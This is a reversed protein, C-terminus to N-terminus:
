GGDDQIQGGGYGQNRESKPNDRWRFVISWGLKRYKDICDEPVDMLSAKVKGDTQEEAFGILVWENGLPEENHPKGDAPHRM